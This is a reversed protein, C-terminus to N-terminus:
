AAAEDDEPLEVEDPEDPGSYITPLDTPHKRGDDDIFYNYAQGSRRGPRTRKPTTELIEESPQEDAPPPNLKGARHDALLQREEDDLEALADQKEVQPKKSIAEKLEDIEARLGADSEGKEEREYADALDRLLKVMNPM